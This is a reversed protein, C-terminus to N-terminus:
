SISSVDNKFEISLILLQYFMRPVTKFTGDVLYRRQEPDINHRVISIITFSAFICFSYKETIVTDVYLRASGDLTYGHEKIIDPRRFLEFIQMSNTPIKPRPKTKIRNLQRNM